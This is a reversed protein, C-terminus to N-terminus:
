DIPAVLVRLAAAEFSDAFGAARALGAEDVAGTLIVCHARADDDGPRSTWQERVATRALPGGRDVPPMPQPGACLRGVLSAFAPSEVRPGIRARLRGSARGIQWSVLEMPDRLDPDWAVVVTARDGACWDDVRAAAAADMTVVIDPALARFSAEGPRVPRTLSRGTWVGLAAIRRGRGAAGVRAHRARDVGRARPLQRRTGAGLRGRRPRQSDRARAGPAARTAGPLERRVRAGRSRRAAAASRSGGRVAHGS